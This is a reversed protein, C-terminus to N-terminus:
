CTVLEPWDVNVEDMDLSSEEDGPVWLLEFAFVEDPAQSAAAIEQLAQQVGVADGHFERPEGETRDGMLTAIAMV